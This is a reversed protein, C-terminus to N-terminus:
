YDSPLVEKSFNVDVVSDRFMKIDMTVGDVVAATSEIGAVSLRAKVRRFDDGELYAKPLAEVSFTSEDLELTLGPNGGIAGGAYLKSCMLVFAIGVAKRM